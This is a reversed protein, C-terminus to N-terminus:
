QWCMLSVTIPVTSTGHAEGVVFAVADPVDYSTTTSIQRFTRGGDISMYFTKATAGDFSVKVIPHTMGLVRPYDTTLDVMGSGWNGQYSPWYTSSYFWGAHDLEWQGTIHPLTGSVLVTAPGAITDNVTYDTKSTFGAHFDFVATRTWATAPTPQLLMVHNVRNLVGTSTIQFLLSGMSGATITNSGLNYPVWPTYTVTDGNSLNEATSAWGRQVSWNTGSGKSNVRIYEGRVKIAFPVSVTSIFDSSLTLTTAAALADAALTGTAGTLAPPSTCGVFEREPLIQATLSACLLILVLKM